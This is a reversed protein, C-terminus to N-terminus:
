FQLQEMNEMEDTIETDEM